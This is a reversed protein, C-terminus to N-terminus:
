SGDQGVVATPELERRAAELRARLPGDLANAFRRGIEESLRPAAAAKSEILEGLVTLWAAPQDRLLAAADFRGASLAARFRAEDLAPSGAVGNAAELIEFARLAEGQAILLPTLTTLAEVRDDPELADPAAAALPLLVTSRLEPDAYDVRRLARDAGLRDEPALEKALTRVAEAWAPRLGEPPVLGVLLQFNAPDAPGAAIARVASPYVAADTARDLLPQRRGRAALGEAVARRLDPSEEDLMPEVRLLDSDEGIFALLRVLGALQREHDTAIPTGPDGPALRRAADRIAIVAAARSEIPIEASRVFAWLAETAPVAVAASPEAALHVISDFADVTPRRTLLELSGIQVARDVESPLRAAVIRALDPEDLQELIALAKLRLAAAPDDLRDVLKARVPDPIAVSDRLLREIRSIALDRVPTLSDDLDLQIRDLQEPVTLTRHMARLLDVFRRAIDANERELEANRDQYQRILERAWEEQSMDRVGQWWNRWKDFDSGFDAPSLRRLSTFAAAKIQDHEGRFPDALEILEDGSARTPFYGLAHIAGIREAVPLSTDEALAVVRALGEAEYRTVIIALPDLVDPAATRLAHVAADLLGPVPAEVTNMAQIVSLRVPPAGERLAKDLVAVAQPVRLEILRMAAGVRTDPHNATNQLISSFFVLDREQQASLGAAAAADVQALTPAAFLATCLGLAPLFRRTRRDNKLM